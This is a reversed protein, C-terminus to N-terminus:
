FINQFIEFLKFSYKLENNNKEDDNSLRNIGPIITNLKSINNINDKNPLMSSFIIFVYIYVFINKKIFKNNLAKCFKEKIQKLIIVM